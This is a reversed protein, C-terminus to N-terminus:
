TAGPGAANFTVDGEWPILSIARTVELVGRRVDASGSEGEASAAKASMFGLLDDDIYGADDHKKWHKFERDQWENCRTHENWRRNTQEGEVALLRRLAFRIAEASVATHVQGHWLLKQLTTINGDTEGRNNAATGYHTVLAAFLHKSM